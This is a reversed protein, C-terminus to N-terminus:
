RRGFNPYIPFLHLFVVSHVGGCIGAALLLFVDFVDSYLSVPRAVPRKVVNNLIPNRARMRSAMYVRRSIEKFPGCFVRAPLIGSRSRSTEGLSVRLVRNQACWAYFALERRRGFPTRKLASPPMIRYASADIELGIQTCPAAIELRM